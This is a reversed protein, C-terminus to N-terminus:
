RASGKRANRIARRRARTMGDELQRAAERLLLITRSPSTGSTCILVKGLESVVLIPKCGVPLDVMQPARRRKPATYTVRM